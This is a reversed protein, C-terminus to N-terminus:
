GGFNPAFEVTVGAKRRPGDWRRQFGDYTVGDHWPKAWEQNLLPMWSNAQLLVGECM